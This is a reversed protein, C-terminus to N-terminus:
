ATTYLWEVTDSTASGYVDEKSSAGAAALAARVGSSDCTLTRACVVAIAGASLPASLLLVISNLM